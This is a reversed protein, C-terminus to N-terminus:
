LPHRADKVTRDYAVKNSALLNFAEKKMIEEAKKAEDGTLEVAAGNNGLGPIIQALDLKILEEYKDETKSRNKTKTIPLIHDSLSFICPLLNIPTKGINSNLFIRM